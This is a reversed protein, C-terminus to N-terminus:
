EFANRMLTRTSVRDLQCILIVGNIHGLKEDETGRRGRINIHGKSFSSHLPSMVISPEIVLCKKVSNEIGLNQKLSILMLKRAGGVAYAFYKIAEQTM